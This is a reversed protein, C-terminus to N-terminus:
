IKHSIDYWPFSITLYFHNEITKKYTQAIKAVSFYAKKFTNCFLSLSLFESTEMEYGM